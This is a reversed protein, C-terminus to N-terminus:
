EVPPTPLSRAAELEALDRLARIGVKNPQQKLAAIDRFHRGLCEQMIPHGLIRQEAGKANTNIGGARIVWQDVSNYENQAAYGAESGKPDQRCRYCYILTFSAYQAYTHEPHDSRMDDTPVLTECEAQIAALEEPSHHPELIDNWCEDLIRAFEAGSGVGTEQSFRLYSGRQRTASSAAFACICEAPLTAIEAVLKERDFTLM